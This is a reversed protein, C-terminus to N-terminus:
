QQSTQDVFYFPTDITHYNSKFDISDNLQVYLNVHIQLLDTTVEAM